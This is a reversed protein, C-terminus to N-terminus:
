GWASLRNRRVDPVSPAFTRTVLRVLRTCGIMRMSSASAIVISGSGHGHPRVSARMRATDVGALVSIPALATVSTVKV